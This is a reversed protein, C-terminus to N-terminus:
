VISLKRKPGDKVLPFKLFRKNYVVENFIFSIKTTHFENFRKVPLHRMNVDENLISYDIYQLNM